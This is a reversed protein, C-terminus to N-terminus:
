DDYPDDASGSAILAIAFAALPLVALAGTIALVLATPIDFRRGTELLTIASFVVVFGLAILYQSDVDRDVRRRYAAVLVCAVSAVPIVWSYKGATPWFALAALVLFSIASIAGGVTVIGATRLKMVEATLLAALRESM